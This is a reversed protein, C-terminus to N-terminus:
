QNVIRGAFQGNARNPFDPPELNWEHMDGVRVVVRRELFRAKDLDGPRKAHSREVRGIRALDVDFNAHM